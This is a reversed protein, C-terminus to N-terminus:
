WTPMVEAALDYGQWNDVGAAELADLELSSKLHARYRKLRDVDLIAVIADGDSLENFKRMIDADGDKFPGFAKPESEGDFAVVCLKGM